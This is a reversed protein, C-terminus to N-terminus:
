TFLYEYKFKLPDYCFKVEQFGERFTTIDEKVTDPKENDKVVRKIFGAITEMDHEKMGYRTM